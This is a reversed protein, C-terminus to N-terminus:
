EMLFCYNGFIVVIFFSATAKQSSYSLKALTLGVVRKSSTGTFHLRWRILVNNPSLSANYCSVPRQTTEKQRRWSAVCLDSLFNQGTINIPGLTELALPVFFHTNL